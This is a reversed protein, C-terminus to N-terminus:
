LTHIAYTAVGWIELPTDENIELPPYDPNEAILRCSNRTKILRKVTLEGNVIAIVINSSSPELSRDVVLIDNDNIGAGMMSDGAVRVFYTAAPNKVLHENLDLKQDLYEDAPSPFGASVGSLFLPRQLSIDDASSYIEKIPSSNEM